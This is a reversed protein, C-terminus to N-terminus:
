NEVLKWTSQGTKIRKFRHPAFERPTRIGSSDAIRMRNTQTFSDVVQGVSYKDLESQATSKYDYIWQLHLEFQGPAPGSWGSDFGTRQIREQADGDVYPGINIGNISPQFAFLVPQDAPCDAGLAQGQVPDIADVNPAAVSITVTKESTTKRPPMTPEVYTAVCKVNYIGTRNERTWIQLSNVPMANWTGAGVPQWFWTYSARGASKGDETATFFVDNGVVIPNPTYTLDTLAAWVASTGLFVSTVVCVVVSRRFSKTHMAQQMRAITVM